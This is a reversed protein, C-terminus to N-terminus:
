PALPSSSQVCHCQSNIGISKSDSTVTSTPKLTSYEVHSESHLTLGISGFAMLVAVFSGEPLSCRKCVFLYYGGVGRLIAIPYIDVLFGDGYALGM